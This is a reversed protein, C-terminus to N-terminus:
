SQAVHPALETILAVLKQRRQTKKERRDGTTLVKFDSNAETEIYKMVESTCSKGDGGTSDAVRKLM